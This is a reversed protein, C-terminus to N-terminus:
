PEVDETDRGARVAPGDTATRAPENSRDRLKQWGLIALIIVLPLIYILNTAWHGSHAIPITM